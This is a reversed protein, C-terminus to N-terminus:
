LLIINFVFMVMSNLYCSAQKKLKLKENWLDIIIDSLKKFFHRSNFFFETM